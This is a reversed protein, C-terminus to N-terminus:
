RVQWMGRKSERAEHALAQFLQAYKVDPPITLPRAWGARILEANVMRDGVYVYALLRGYADYVQVDYELRIPQRDVLQQNCATAEHAFPEAAEVWRDGRRRRAEPADIGIYRVLQGDSLQVTDGDIVHRVVARPPPTVQRSSGAAVLLLIALPTTHRILVRVLPRRVSLVRITM